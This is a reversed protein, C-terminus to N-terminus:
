ENNYLESLDSHFSDAEHFIAGELLSQNDRFLLELYEKVAMKESYDCDKFQAYKDPYKDQLEKLTSIYVHTMVSEIMNNIIGEASANKSFIDKRIPHNYTEKSPNMSEALLISERLSTLRYPYSSAGSNVRYLFNYDNINHIKHYEDLAGIVPCTTLSTFGSEPYQIPQQQQSEPRKTPLEPEQEEIDFVPATSEPRSGYVSDQKACGSLVALVPVIILLFKKM